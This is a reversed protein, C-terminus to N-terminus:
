SPVFFISGTIKTTSAFCCCCCSFCISMSLRFSNLRDIKIKFYKCRNDDVVNDDDDDGDDGDDDNNNFVVNKILILNQKTHKESASVFFFWWDKWDFFFHLWSKKERNQQPLKQFLLHFLFFVFFLECQYHIM